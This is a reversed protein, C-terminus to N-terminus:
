QIFRWGAMFTGWICRALVGALFIGATVSIGFLLQNLFNKM